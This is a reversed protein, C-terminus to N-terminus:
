SSRNSRVVGFVTTEDAVQASYDLIVRMTKSVDPLNHKATAAELYDVLVADLMFSARQKRKQAATAASCRKVGYVVEEDGAQKAFTVCVRLAKGTDALNYKRAMTALWQLHSADLTVELRRKCKAPDGGAASGARAKAVAAAVIAAGGAVVALAKAVGM